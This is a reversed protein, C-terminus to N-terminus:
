PRILLMLDSVNAGTPGTMIIDGSARFLEYDNFRELYAAADLGAIAAHERTTADALAGAADTNDLGDSAIATFLDGAGIRTLATLAAHLNRGGLGAHRPVLLRFEGGAVVVSRPVAKAVLRDIVKEPEEYLDDAIVTAIYGLETAKAAMAELAETNSVLVINDVREFYKQEKPTDTLNYSGLSHRDIVTQADAITSSDPYTPGSAVLDYQRGPVDSFVLAIVRAPWLAKALGGGKLASIHKRVTNLEHITLDAHRAAEYLRRGQDCEAEPWCLLASGGGSVVVIVLDDKSVDKTLGMMQESFRANEPSPLPHTGVVATITECVRPANGIVMGSAIRDGLIRELAAAADCSAKGFGIVHVHRVGALDFSRGAVTLIRGDFSVQRAIVGETDIATFAAEVVALADRRLPTTALQESNTIRGSM